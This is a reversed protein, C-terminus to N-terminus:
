LGNGPRCGRDGVTSEVTHAGEKGTVCYITDKLAIGTTGLCWRTGARVHVSFSLSLFLSPPSSLTYANRATYSVQRSSVYTARPAARRPSRLGTWKTRKGKRKENRQGKCDSHWGALQLSLLHAPSSMSNARYITCLKDRRGYSQQGGSLNKSLSHALRRQAVLIVM